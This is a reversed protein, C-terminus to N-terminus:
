RKVLANVDAFGHLRGRSVADGELQLGDILDLISIGLFRLHPVAPQAWNLMNHCPHLVARGKAFPAFLTPLFIMVVCLAVLFRIVFRM